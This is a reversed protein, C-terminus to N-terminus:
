FGRWRAKLELRCNRTRHAIPKELGWTDPEEENTVSDVKTYFLPWHKGTLPPYYKKLFDAHCNRSHLPSTQAQYSHNGLVKQILCPGQWSPCHKDGGPARKFWVRQRAKYYIPQVRNKDYALGRNEEEGCLAATLDRDHQRM